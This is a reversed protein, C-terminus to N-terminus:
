QPRRVAAVLELVLARVWDFALAEKSTLQAAPLVM